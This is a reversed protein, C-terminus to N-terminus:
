SFFAALHAREDADLRLPLAEVVAELQDPRRPAVLPATVDDSSLLWALALGAASVGRRHAEAAFRRVQELFRAELHPAYIAAAVEM